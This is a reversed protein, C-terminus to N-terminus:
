GSEEEARFHSIPNALIPQDDQRFTGAYPPPCNLYRSSSDEAACDTKRSNTRKMFEKINRPRMDASSNLLLIVYEFSEEHIGDTNKYRILWNDTEEKMELIEHKLHIDLKLHKVAETLYRVIQEGTAWVGGIKGHKEFVIPV